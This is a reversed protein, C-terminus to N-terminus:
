WATSSHSSNELHCLLELTQPNHVSDEPSENNGTEWDCPMRWVSACSVVRSDSATFPSVDSVTVRHPQMYIEAILTTLHFSKEWFRSWLHTTKTHWGYLWLLLHSCHVPSVSLSIVINESTNLIQSCVGSLSVSALSMQWVSFCWPALACDKLIKLCSHVQLLHAILWRSSFGKKVQM